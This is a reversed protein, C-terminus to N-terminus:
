SPMPVALSVCTGPIGADRFGAVSGSPGLVVLMSGTGEGRTSAGLNASTGSADIVQASHEAAAAAGLWRVVARFWQAGQEGAFAASGCAVPLAHATAAHAPEPPPPQPIAFRSKEVDWAESFISGGNSDPFRPTAIGHADGPIRITQTQTPLALSFTSFL